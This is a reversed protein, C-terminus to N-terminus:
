YLVGSKAYGIVLLAVTLILPLFLPLALLVFSKM